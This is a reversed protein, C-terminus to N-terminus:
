SHRFYSMKDYMTFFIANDTMFILSYNNLSVFVLTQSYAHFFWLDANFNCICTSCIFCMKCKQCFVYMIDLFIVHFNQFYWKLCMIACWIIKQTQRHQFLVSWVRQTQHTVHQTMNTVSHCIRWMSHCIKTVHPSTNTVHQSM